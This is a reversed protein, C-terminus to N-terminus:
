RAGMWSWEVTAGAGFGSGGFHLILGGGFGSSGNLIGVRGAAGLGAKRETAWGTCEFQPSDAGENGTSEISTWEYCLAGMLSWGILGDVFVASRNGFRLPVLGAGFGFFGAAPHPDIGEPALDGFPNAVGRWEGSVFARFRTGHVGLDAKAVISGIVRDLVSSTLIAGGAGFTGFMHPYSVSEEQNDIPREQVVRRDSDIPREDVVVRNSSQPSVIEQRPPEESPSNRTPESEVESEVRPWPILTVRAAEIKAVEDATLEFEFEVTTDGRPGNGTALSFPFDTLVLVRDHRSYQVGRVNPSLSTDCARQRGGRERFCVTRRSVENSRQDLLSLRVLLFASEFQEILTEEDFDTPVIEFAVASVGEQVIILLSGSETGYRRRIFGGSLMTLSGRRESIDVEQAVNGMDEMTRRFESAATHYLESDIGVEVTWTVIGPGDDSTISVESLQLNNSSVYGAHAFPALARTLMERAEGARRQRTAIEARLSEGDVIAELVELERLRRQVARKRVVAQITIEFVGADEAQRVVQYSTVYGDTYTLVEDRIIRDNRVRTEADVMTGVVQNLANTLANARAANETTGIGSVVVTVEEEIPSASVEVGFLCLVAVLASFHLGSLRRRM